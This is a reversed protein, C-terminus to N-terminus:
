QYDRGSHNIAGLRTGLANEQAPSLFPNPLGLGLRLGLELMAARIM